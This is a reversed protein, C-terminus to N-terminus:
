GGESSPTIVELREEFIRGTLDFRLTAVLDLTTIREEKENLRSAVLRMTVRGESEQIVTTEAQGEFGQEGTPAEASDPRLPAKGLRVIQALEEEWAAAVATIGRRVIESQNGPHSGNGLDSRLATVLLVADSLGSLHAGKEGLFLARLHAEARLRLPVKKSAAPAKLPPTNRYAVVQLGAILILLAIFAAIGARWWTTRASGLRPSLTGFFVM